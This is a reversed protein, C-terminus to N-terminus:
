HERPRILVDDPSISFRPRIPAAPPPRSDIVETVRTIWDSTAATERRCGSPIHEMLVTSDSDGQGHYIPSPLVVPRVPVSGMPPNPTDLLNGLPAVIGAPRRTTTHYEENLIEQEWPHQAPASCAQQEQKRVRDGNYYHVKRLEEELSWKLRLADVRCMEEDFLAERNRRAQLEEQLQRARLEEQLQREAREERKRRELHRREETSLFLAPDAGKFSPSVTSTNQQTLHYNTSRLHSVTARLRDLEERVRHPIYCPNKLDIVGDINWQVWRSAPVATAVVLDSIAMRKREGNCYHPRIALIARARRPGIDDLTQLEDPSCKFLNIRAM